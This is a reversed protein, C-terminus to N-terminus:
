LRRVGRWDLVLLLLGVIALVVCIAVSLNVVGLLGLIAVLILLLGVVALVGVAGGDGNPLYDPAAPVHTAATYGVAASVFNLVAQAVKLWVPQETEATAFGVVTAGLAVGVFGFVIYVITRWKTPIALTPSNM